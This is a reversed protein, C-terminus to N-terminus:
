GQFNSYGDKIGFVGETRSRSRASFLVLKHKMRLLKFNAAKGGYLANDCVQPFREGSFSSALPMSSQFEGV